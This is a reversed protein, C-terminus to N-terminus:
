RKPTLQMSLFRWAGGERVLMQSVYAEILRVGGDKETMHNSLPGWIVASEGMRKARLDRREHRRPTEVVWDLYQACTMTGDGGTIHTYDEHLLTRLAEVNAERTAKCRADEAALVDAVDDTM